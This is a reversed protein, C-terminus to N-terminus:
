LSVISFCLFCVCVCVLFGRAAREVDLERYECSSLASVCVCVCVCVCCLAVQQVSVGGFRSWVTGCAACLCLCVGCVVCVCVCVFVCAWCLAVQQM